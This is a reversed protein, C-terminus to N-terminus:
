EVKPATRVAGANVAMHSLSSRARAALAADILAADEPAFPMLKRRMEAYDDSNWSAKMVGTESHRCVGEIMHTIEHVLVHAMLPTLLPQDPAITVVRDYLIRIHIGELPMSYALAGPHFAAPTDDTVSVQFARAPCSSLGTHWRIAVGVGAFIKAALMKAQPIFDSGMGAEMCVTVTRDPEFQPERAQARWGTTIVLTIWITIRM